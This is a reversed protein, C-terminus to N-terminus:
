ATRQTHSDFLRGSFDLAVIALDAAHNPNTSDMLRSARRLSESTRVISRECTLAVAIATLVDSSSLFLSIRSFVDGAAPADGVDIPRVPTIFGFRMLVIVATGMFLVVVLQRIAAVYGARFLQLM